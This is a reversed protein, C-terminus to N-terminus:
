ADILEIDNWFVEDGWLFGQEWYAASRVGEGKGWGAQAVVLRSETELYQGKQITWICPIM